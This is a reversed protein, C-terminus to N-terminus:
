FSDFRGGRAASRRTRRTEKPAGYGTQRTWGSLSAQSMAFAYPNINLQDAYRNSGDRLQAHVAFMSVTVDSTQVPGSRPHDVTGDGKIQLFLLEDRALDHLPAHVTDRALSMKFSAPDRIKRPKTATYEDVVIHECGRIERLRKRLRQIMQPSAYQDFTILYINFARALGVILDEIDDYQVEGDASESPIFADLYDVVVHEEGDVTEIHGLAIGTNSKNRGLDCHLVYRYMPNGRDQMTLIRGQWLAFLRDILDPSLFASQSTRWQAGYEVAAVDPDLRFKEAMQEDNAIIPGALRSFTPGDPWMPSTM